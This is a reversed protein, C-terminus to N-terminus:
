HPPEALRVVWIMETSADALLHRHFDGYLAQVEFGARSFLHEMEFRFVCHLPVRSTQWTDVVKGDAAIEEWRAESFATQTSPEYSWARYARIERGNTSRKFQGRPEFQGPERGVIGALWTVDQHDIHVVLQANHTLHRRVCELCALQEDAASLHQFAHGPILVLAFSKDLDFFKMDGEVWSVNDM